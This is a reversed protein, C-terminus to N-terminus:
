EGGHPPSRANVRTQSVSPMSQGTTAVASGVTIRNDTPHYRTPHTGRPTAAPVSHMRWPELRRALRGLSQGSVRRYNTRCPHPTLAKRGIGYPICASLRGTYSEILKRTTGVRERASHRDCPDCTVTRRANHRRTREPGPYLSLARAGDRRERREYPPGIPWGASVPPSECGLYSALSQTDYSVPSQVRSPQAGM